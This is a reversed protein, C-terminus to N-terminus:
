SSMAATFGSFVVRHPPSTVLCLAHADLSIRGGQGGACRSLGRSMVPAFMRMIAFARELLPEPPEPLPGGATAALVRELWAREGSCRACETLHPSLPVPQGDGPASRLVDLIEGVSPCRM